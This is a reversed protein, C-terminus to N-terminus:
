LLCAALRTPQTHQSASRGNYVFLTVRVDIKSTVIGDYIYFVFLYMSLYYCIGGGEKRSYAVVAQESNGRNGLERGLSVGGKETRDGGIMGMDKVL